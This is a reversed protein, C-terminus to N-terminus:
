PQLVQNQASARQAGVKLKAPRIAGSGTSLKYNGSTVDVKLRGTGRPSIPGTSQKVGPATAGLEDTELTVDQSKDSQNTVIVVIPGGGFEAPSVSVSKPSVYVTVNIPAPPRLENKYNSGGGCSSLVLASACGLAGLWRRLGASKRDLTEM